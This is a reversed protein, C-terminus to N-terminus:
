NSTVSSCVRGRSALKELCCLLCSVGHDEEVDEAEELLPVRSQSATRAESRCILTILEHVLKFFQKMMLM